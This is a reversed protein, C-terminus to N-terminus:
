IHILSLGHEIIPDAFLDDVRTQIAETSTEGNLLFGTISRVQPVELGHDAALQRRVVDGRVDRMGPGERPTIEVRTIPM